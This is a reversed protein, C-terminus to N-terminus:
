VGSWVTRCSMESKAFGPWFTANTPAVPAPLVVM